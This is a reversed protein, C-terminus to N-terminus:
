ELQICSALFWDNAPTTVNNNQHHRALEISTFYNYKERFTHKKVQKLIPGELNFYSLSDKAWLAYSFDKKWAHMVNCLTYYHTKLWYCKTYVAKMTIPHGSRCSFNANMARSVVAKDKKINEKMVSWFM